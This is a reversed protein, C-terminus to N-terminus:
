FLLVAACDMKYLTLKCKLRKGIDEYFTGIKCLVLDKFLSQYNRINM